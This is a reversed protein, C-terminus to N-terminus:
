AVAPQQDLDKLFLRWSSPEAYDVERACGAEQRLLDGINKFVQKLM